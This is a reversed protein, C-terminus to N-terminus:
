RLAGVIQDVNWAMMKLYTDAPPPGLTDNWLTTVVSTIGAEQALTHALEPSFQAESFVATV